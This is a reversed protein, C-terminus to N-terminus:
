KHRSKLVAIVESLPIDRSRLLVLTHFILDAAEEMFLDDRNDMAELALEVAEEGVKQAIKKIGKAFLSKTYSGEGVQQKRDEIIRELQHLFLANPGNVEAFCTDTGTHCVPGAPIAKVLLSDGDCDVLIERLQLYNGSTEGKTWLREKSRSYFTVRGTDLTTSYAERNMYGLMLVTGSDADQVIVPVLGQGKEFDINDIHM